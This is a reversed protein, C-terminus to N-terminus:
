GWENVESNYFEGLNVRRVSPPLTGYSEFTENYTWPFIHTLGNKDYIITNSDSESRKSSKETQLKKYLDELSPQLPNTQKHKKSAVIEKLMQLQEPFYHSFRCISGFQCEGRLFRSCPKKMSEEELITKPEKYQQYHEQVLKQHLLGKNHTKVIAPTAVMTKDCYECHYRKGMNQYPLQLEKM